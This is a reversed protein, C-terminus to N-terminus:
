RPPRLVRWLGLALVVGGAGAGVLIGTAAEADILGSGALALVLTGLVAVGGLLLGVVLWRASRAKESELPEADLGKAIVQALRIQTGAWLWGSLVGIIGVAVTGMLVESITSGPVSPDTFGPVGSHALVAGIGIPVMGAVFMVSTRLTWSRRFRRKVGRLAEESKADRLDRPLREDLPAM